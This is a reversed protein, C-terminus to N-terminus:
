ATSHTDGIQLPRDGYGGAVLNFSTQEIYDALCDVFQRREVAVVQAGDVLRSRLELIQGDSGLNKGRADLDDVQELWIAFTAFDTQEATGTHTLGHEDHLKDVIDGFAM